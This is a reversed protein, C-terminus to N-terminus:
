LIWREKQTFITAWVYTFKFRKKSLYVDKLNSYVSLFIKEKIWEEQSNATFLSLCLSSFFFSLFRVSCLSVGIRSNYMKECALFLIQNGQPKGRHMASSKSLSLVSNVCFYLLLLFLKKLMCTKWTWERLTSNKLAVICWAVQKELWLHIIWTCKLLM